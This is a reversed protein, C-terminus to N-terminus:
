KKYTLKFLCAESYWTGGDSYVTHRGCMEILSKLFSEVVLINSQRSMYIGLIAWRIPEIAVWHWAEAGGIQM